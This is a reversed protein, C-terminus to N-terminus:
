FNKYVSSLKQINTKKTGIVCYNQDVLKNFLNKNFRHLQKLYNSKLPQKLCWNKFVLM